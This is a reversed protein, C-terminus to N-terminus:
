PTRIGPSTAEREYIRLVALFLAMVIPGVVIGVLGFVEIGGLFAVLMLLPNVNRMKSGVVRPRIVYDAFGTVVFFGWAGVFIAGAVHGEMALYVTMPAWILATGLIPVFSSAFATLLGWTAAQPAGGIAVGVGASLGQLIATAVTGVLVSRGLARLELWLARTHRPDLPM